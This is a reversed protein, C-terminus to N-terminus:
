HLLPLCLFISKWSTPDPATRLDGPLKNCIQPASFSVAAGSHQKLVQLCLLGVHSSLGPPKQEPNLVNLETQYFFYVYELIQGKVCLSSSFCLCVPKLYFKHFILHM